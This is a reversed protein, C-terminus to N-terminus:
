KHLQIVRKNINYNMIYNYHLQLKSWPCAYPIIMVQMYATLSVYDDKM